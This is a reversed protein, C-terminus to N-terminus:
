FNLQASVKFLRGVMVSIPGSWLQPNANSYRTQEATLASSNTLNYVDFHAALRARGMRVLKTVRADIQTSRPELETNTPFLNITVTANCPGTANPCAALNRGLSPAIEANTAVYTASKALGAINQLIGSVQVDWWPLPYVGSLKFETELGWAPTNRCFQPPVNPQNCNDTITRGTSFGATYSGGKGFRGVVLADVGNYVKTDGGAVSSNVILNNIQGFRAKSVDYLGC